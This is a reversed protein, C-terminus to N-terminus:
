QANGIQEVRRNSRPGGNVGRASNCRRSSEGLGEGTNRAQPASLHRGRHGGGGSAGDDNALVGSERANNGACDGDM